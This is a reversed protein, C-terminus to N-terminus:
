TGHYLVRGRVIGKAMGDRVAFEGNILVDRVSVKMDKQTSSLSFVTIDAFNGEQLAGRKHLSFKQAPLLTIKRIAQEIPMISEAQALELFRPFTEKARESYFNSASNSAIIAQAHGLATKVLTFDIDKYAVVARLKTLIMLRLLAERIDKLERNDAFQKLTKGVLYENGPASLVVIDKGPLEEMEELIRQVQVKNALLKLMEEFGGKKAWDPLFSYIVMNSNAFPYVDFHIGPYKEIKRLADEYRREAEMLPRFHSIQTKVKAEEALEVTEDIAQLIDRTESRLHTAYVGGWEAIKAALRKLESFPVFRSHSYGLGTSMGFAGEEMSDNLLKEFVQLEKETLDRASDGILARRITSHGVLTGFNVGVGRKKLTSLFEGVSHWDVNILRPDGWKRISELTGYLLPALSSGCNGGIITTIGQLLFDRQEPHTLLTLYHDSDTNIDVFGPAVYAGLCNVVEDAKKNPFNGIASIKDDKILVDAKVPSKGTGDIVQGSKLLITM